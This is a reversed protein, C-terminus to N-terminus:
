FSSEWESCGKKVKCAVEAEARHGRGEHPKGDCRQERKGGISSPDAPDDGHIAPM